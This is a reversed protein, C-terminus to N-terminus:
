ITFSLGDDLSDNISFIHYGLLLGKKFLDFLTNILVAMSLLDCLEAQILNKQNRKSRFNNLKDLSTLINFMETHCRWPKDRKPKEGFQWFELIQIQLSILLRNEICLNVYFFKDSSESWYSFSEPSLTDFFMILLASATIWHTLWNYIWSILMKSVGTKWDFGFIISVM